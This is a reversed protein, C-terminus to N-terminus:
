EVTSVKKKVVPASSRRVPKASTTAVPITRRAKPTSAQSEANAEENIRIAASVDFGTKDKIIQRKDLDSIKLKVAMDKIMSIVGEPAFDMCDLFQDKSGRLLLEEVEAESYYYEPEVDQNLLQKIALADQVILYDQLLTRGGPLYSLKVLEEMSIEKTEGPQFNRHLNGLDPITYGVTGNDRNTVNIMTNKDLM